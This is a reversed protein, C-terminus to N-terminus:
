TKYRNPKKISYIAKFYTNYSRKCTNQVSNQLFLCLILVSMRLISTKKPEEQEPFRRVNDLGKAM